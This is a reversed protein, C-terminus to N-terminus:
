PLGEKYKKFSDLDVLYDEDEEYDKNEKTLISFILILVSMAIGLIFANQFGNLLIGVPASFQFAGTSPVGILDTIENSITTVFIENFVVIGMVLGMYRATNLLSSVSGVKEKPSHSMVTKNNAPTFMGESLARIGLAAFIFLIGVTQNLRYLLIIAMILTICAIITPIRSGFNDSIYGSLPGIFIVVLSPILIILGAFDSSYGMILELYFPLLYITGTLVLTAIFGALLSLTIYVNKLISLDLLPEPHKLEWIVFTIGLILSIVFTIVISPLGWGLSEGINFPMIFTLITLGILLSGIVDFKINQVRTKQSPLVKVAFITAIIGVPVVMLFIWNWGMYQTVYGGVGYGSSLGLTTTLSIYGFVKGRMRPPFVTSIIAPVMSLLMASGIGQIIRFIILSVFDLSIGCFYSGITFISIGMVFIKKYGTIDGIRGFVLLFSILTILHIIIILSVMDTSIDLYQSITPLSINVIGASFSWLFMGLALTFIIWNLRHEL